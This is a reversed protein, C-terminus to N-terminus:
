KTYSCFVNSFDTLPLELSAPILGNFLLHSLEVCFLDGQQFIFEMNEWQEKRQLLHSGKQPYLIIKSEESFVQLEPISNYTSISGVDNYINAAYFKTYVRCISKPSEIESVPVKHLTRCCMDM